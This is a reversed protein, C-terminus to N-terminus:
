NEMKLVSRFRVKSTMMKEFALAAQELPFVEIMPVIKASVSFNLADATESRSAVWGKISRRGQFLQWPFLQIPESPASVIILEGDYGLGNIVASISKSDPATALIVRAGGLKKLEDAPNSAESDIYTQAGLQYALEEKDKGRSLVVTRFGLKKSFQVAMHGLGGFGQIAVLDGGKAGSGRLASFTTRGACLLPAAQLSDFESPIPALARASVTMYEAYGGDFSIGPTLINTCKDFDGRQCAECKLCPGGYWGVGVRQDVKWFSVNSGLTSIRGVVEHGPVRPYSIGRYRGEKTIADGHCIGCAEVKILVEGDQPEPIEKNVLEFEAGAVRVQIAKMTSM